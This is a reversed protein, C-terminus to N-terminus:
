DVTWWYDFVKKYASKERGLSYRPDEDTINRVDWEWGFEDCYLAMYELDEDMWPEHFCYYEWDSVVKFRRRVARNSAKKCYRYISAHSSKYTKKYYAIKDNGLAYDRKKTMGYAPSPYSTIHESQWKLKAKHKFDNRRKIRRKEKDTHKASTDPYEDNIIESDSCYGWWGLKGGIKDCHCSEAIAFEAGNEFYAERCEYEDKIYPCNKCTLNTQNLVFVENKNIKEIELM